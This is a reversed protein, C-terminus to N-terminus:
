LPLFFVKGEQCVGFIGIECVDSDLILSTYINECKKAKNNELIMIKDKGILAM